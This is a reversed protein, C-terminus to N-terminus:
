IACGQQMKVVLSKKSDEDWVTKCFESEFPREPTKGTSPPCATDERKDEWDSLKTFDLHGISWAGSQNVKLVFFFNDEEKIVYLENNKIFLPQDGLPLYYSTAGSGRYVRVEQAFLLGSTSVEIEAQDRWVSAKDKNLSKLFSIGKMVKQEPAKPGHSKCPSSYLIPRFSQKSKLNTYFEVPIGYKQRFEELAQAKKAGDVKEEKIKEVFSKWRSMQLGMVQDCESNLPCGKFEHEFDEISKPTPLVQITPSPQAWLATTLFFFFYSVYM